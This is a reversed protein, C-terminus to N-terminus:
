RGVTYRQLFLWQPSYPRSPWQHHCYSWVNNDLQEMWATLALLEQKGASHGPYCVISIAGGPTILPVAAHLSTLTTDAQTTVQKDGGPLYGLNYVILKVTSPHLHAPFYSHCQHLVAVAEADQPTLFAALRKKTAQVARQQLDIAFLKNALAPALLQALAM